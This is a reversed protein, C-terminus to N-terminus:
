GNVLSLYEKPLVSTSWKGNLFNFKYGKDRMSLADVKLLTVDSELQISLKNPDNPDQSLQIMKGEPAEIGNTFIQELYKTTASVYLVNPLDHQEKTAQTNVEESPSSPLLNQKFVIFGNEVSHGQRIYGKAVKPTNPYRTYGVYLIGADKPMYSIHNGVKLMKIINDDILEIEEIRSDPKKKEGNHQLRTIKTRGFFESINKQTDTDTIAFLFMNEVSSLLNKRDEEEQPLYQIAPLLLGGTSRAKTHLSKKLDSDLLSFFTLYEDLPYLIYQEKTVSTQSLQIKFLLSLFAVVFPINERSVEEITHLFIRSDNPTGDDNQSKFFNIFSFGKYGDKSANKKMYLMKVFIDFSSQLTTAISQETKDNGKKVADFYKLVAVIFVEMKADSPITQSTKIESFIEEFRLAAMTSWFKDGKDGAVALFYSHFFDLVLSVPLGNDNDEFFDWYVGRVELHNVIFDKEPRYFYETFEGKTDHIVMRRKTQAFQHMINLMFVTKGQGMSGVILSGKKLSEWKFNLDKSEIKKSLISGLFSFNNKIRRDTFRFNNVYFSDNKSSFKSFVNNAKTWKISNPLTRKYNTYSGNDSPVGYIIKEGDVEKEPLLSAIQWGLIAGIPLLLLYGFYYAVFMGLMMGFLKIQMKVGQIM